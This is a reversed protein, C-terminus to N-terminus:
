GRARMLRRVSFGALAALLVLFALGGALSVPDLQALLNAGTRARRLMEPYPALSFGAYLTNSDHPDRVLPGAELHVPLNGEVLMWNLGGDTSRLVGRHTTLIVTRGGDAIAIGRVSTKGEPLPNGVPSWAGSAPDASFLQDAAAAWLRLDFTLTEVRGLPLGNDRPAWTVGRDASAWIRGGSVAWLTAPEGPSAVLADVPAEPLGQAAATWTQGHDNSAFVGNEGALFHSGGAFIIARAPAAGAPALADQWVAGDSSFYVRNGTVAIEGRGDEGFQVAFVPASFQAGPEPSWDRGGNRSRLLRSDTGYLLSNPDRPNVAVSLAGGIFLGADAPFWNLGNDRSRFLGGWASPDHAHASPTLLLVWLLLVLPPRMSAIM